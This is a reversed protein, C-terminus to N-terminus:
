RLDRGNWSLFQRTEAAGPTAARGLVYIFLAPTKV